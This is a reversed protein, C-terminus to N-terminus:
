EPPEALIPLRQTEISYGVQHVPRGATITDITVLVAANQATARKRRLRGHFQIPDVDLNQVFQLLVAADGVHFQSLEHM